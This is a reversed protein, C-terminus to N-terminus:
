EHKFYVSISVARMGDKRAANLSWTLVGHEMFM